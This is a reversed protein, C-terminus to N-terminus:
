LRLHQYIISSNGKRIKTALTEDYEIALNMQLDFKRVFKLKRLHWVELLWRLEQSM